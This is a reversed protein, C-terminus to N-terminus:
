LHTKNNNIDSLYHVRHNLSHITDSLNHVHHKLSHITARIDSLNHVRHNLSHITTYQQQSILSITSVITWATYQQTDNNHYWLSQPCSPEPQTNNHITTTIDSLNHVCHNLSHITTYRQSILSITSVITWATYQQTDNNHYWLSQPCSTEPQTNNSQYWLSQPCSPEPQTNNHITTTIDSLYHVRHDLSHITTYRQQSILSITSVITWATYQQTDNSHYWLSQPCSPGPQTNNHITTTIDSLYHVRHNLSHITTYRQQSILSITSV